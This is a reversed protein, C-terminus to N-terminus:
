LALRVRVPQASIPLRLQHDGSRFIAADSEIRVLTFSDVSEGVFMARNNVLAGPQAGGIVGGLQISLERTADLAPTRVAFPNPDDSKATAELASLDIVGDSNPMIFPPSEVAPSVILPPPPAIPAPAAISTVERPNKEVPPAPPENVEPTALPPAIPVPPALSVETPTFNWSAPGEVRYVVHGEHRVGADDPDAYAGLTYRTVIEPSRLSSPASVPAVPLAPPRVPPPLPSTQCGSLALAAILGFFAPKNM